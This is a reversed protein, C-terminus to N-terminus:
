RAAAERDLPAQCGARPAVGRAANCRWLAEAREASARHRAVSSEVGSAVVQQFALLLALVGAVGLLTPAFPALRDCVLSCSSAFHMM